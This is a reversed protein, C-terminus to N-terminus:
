DMMAPYLAIKHCNKVCNATAIGRHSRASLSMAITVAPEVRVTHTLRLYTSLHYVHLTQTSM